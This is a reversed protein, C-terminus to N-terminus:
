RSSFGLGGTGRATEGVRRGGGGGSGPLKHMPVCGAYRLRDLRRLANMDEDRTQVEMGPQWAIPPPM